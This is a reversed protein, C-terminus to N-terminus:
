EYSLTSRWPLHLHGPEFSLFHSQQNHFQLVAVQVIPLLVVTWAKPFMSLQVHHKRYALILWPQRLYVLSCAYLLLVIM